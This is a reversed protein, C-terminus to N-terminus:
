STSTNLSAPEGASNPNPSAAATAGAGGAAATLTAVEPLPDTATWTVQSASASDLLGRYESNMGCADQVGLLYASRACTEEAAKLHVHREPFIPKYFFTTEVHQKSSHVWSICMSAHIHLQM